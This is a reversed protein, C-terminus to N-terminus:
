TSFAGLVVVLVVLGVVVGEFMVVGVLVVLGLTLVVGVVVGVFVVVVLSAGYTGSYVRRGAGAKPLPNRPSASM